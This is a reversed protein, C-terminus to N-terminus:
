SPCQPGQQGHQPSQSQSPMVHPAVPLNQAFCSVVQCTTFDATPASASGPVGMLLSSLLGPSLLPQSSQLPLLSLTILACIQCCSWVNTWIVVFRFRCYVRCCNVGLAWERTDGPSCGALRLSCAPVASGPEPCGGGRPGPAEGEVRQCGVSWVGQDGTCEPLCGEKRARPKGAGHSPGGRFGM